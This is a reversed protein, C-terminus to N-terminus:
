DNKFKILPVQILNVSSNSGDKLIARGKNFSDPDKNTIKELDEKKGITNNINFDSDTKMLVKTPINALVNSPINTSDIKQAFIFFIIKAARSKQFLEIMLSFIEEKLKKNPHTGITGIEDIFVFCYKGEYQLSKNKKMEEFRTNMLTKLEVLKDRVSDINDIFHMNEENRYRFLETGKLDILEVSQIEDENRFISQLFYHMLNSKGSGTEGVVLTHILKNIPVLYNGKLSYGYTFFGEKFDFLCAELFEPLKYLTLKVGKQGWKEIKMDGDYKLYQLIDKKKKQYEDVVISIWNKYYVEIRDEYKKLRKFSDHSSRYRKEHGDYQKVNRFLGMAYPLNIYKFYRLFWFLFLYANILILVVVYLQYLESNLVFERILTKSKFILQLASYHSLVESNMSYEFSLITGLAVFNMIILKLFYHYIAGFM